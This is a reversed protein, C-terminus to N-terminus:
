EFAGIPKVAAEDHRWALLRVPRKKIFANWAKSIICFREDSLVRHKGHMRNMFWERLAHRPDGKELGLGEGVGRIFEELERPMTDAVLYTFVPWASSPRLRNRFQANNYLAVHTELDPHAEYVSVLEAISRVIEYGKQGNLYWHLLRAAAAVGNSNKAGLHSIMDGASRRAGTDIAVYAAPDLNRVVLFQVPKNIEIVANLRHQGDLLKGNRDFKITDGNFVWNNNALDRAYKSVVTSRLRRNNSNIESTLWELAMEPTVTEMVCTVSKMNKEENLYQWKVRNRIRWVHSTSIGYDAAVLKGIRTDQRVARVQAATLKASINAEGKAWPM